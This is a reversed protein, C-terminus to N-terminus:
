NGFFVPILIQSNIKQFFRAITTMGKRYYIRSVVWKEYCHLELEKSKYFQYCCNQSDQMDNSLVAFLIGLMKIMATRAVEYRKHKM